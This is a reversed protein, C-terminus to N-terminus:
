NKIFKRTETRRDESSISMIYIGPSLSSTDIDNTQSFNASKTMVVQGLNNTISLNSISIDTKLTIVDDAPNPYLSITSAELQVDDVSLLQDTDSARSTYDDIIYNTATTNGGTGFSLFNAELPAMGPIINAGVTFTANVNMFDTKWRIEGTITDYACGATVWTNAPLILDTNGAGLNFGFLGITGGNNLTALGSLENTAPDFQIAALTAGAGANDGFILGRLPAASTTSGTFFSFELEVIDNGSTRSAWATQISKFLFRVGADGDPSTIQAGQTGNNGSAVVQFNSDAANTSTSPPNGNNGFTLFGGQGPTMGTLDTGFNGITLADFNDSDLVQSFGILPLIFLLSLLKTRM